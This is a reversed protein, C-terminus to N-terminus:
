YSICPHATCKEEMRNDSVLKCILCYISHFTISRVNQCVIVQLMADFGGEPSDLNGSITENQIRQQLHVHTYMNIYTIGGASVAFLNADSTFNITHRFSYTPECNM